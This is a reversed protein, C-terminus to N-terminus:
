RLRGDFRTGSLFYVVTQFLHNIITHSYTMQM